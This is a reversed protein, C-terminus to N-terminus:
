KPTKRGELHSTCTTNAFLFSPLLAPTSRSTPMKSEIGTTNHTQGHVARRSEDMKMNMNM